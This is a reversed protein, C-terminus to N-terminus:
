LCVSLYLYMYMNCQATSPSNAARVPLTFQSCHLSTVTVRVIQTKRRSPYEDKFSRLANAQKDPLLIMMGDHRKKLDVVSAM